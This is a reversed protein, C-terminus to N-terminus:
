RVGSACLATNVLRIGRADTYPALADGLAKKLNALESPPLKEEAVAVSGVMARIVRWHHDLSDFTFGVERREIQFDSFGAERLVSEFQGPRSLRFPGPANPDPPPGGLFRGISQFLTSFFICKSPEDWASIAFRGKGKLVRRLERAGTVPDCFMLGDKCTIADFSEDAFDLKAVDMVRHEINTRGAAKRRAAEIMPNSADTAVLKRVREAIALSPIGTGCAADLVVMESSAHIADGFWSSTDKMVDAHWDHCQEWGSEHIVDAM